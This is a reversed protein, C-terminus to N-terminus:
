IHKVLQPGYILAAFVALWAFVASVIVPDSLIAQLHERTRDTRRALLYYRWVALAVFPATVWLFSTGYKEVGVGSFSYAAYVAVTAAGLARFLFEEAASPRAVSADMYIRKGAVVYAALLFAEPYVWASVRVDIAAAGALMRLIMGAAIAAVGAARMKKLFFNYSLMLVAYAALMIAYGDGICAAVAGAATAAGAAAAAMGGRSIRGAAYPRNRKVADARDQGVDVLDNVVYIFGAAFCFGAFAAAALAASGADLMGGSFFLPAGVLLNKVWHAPRFTKIYDVVAM